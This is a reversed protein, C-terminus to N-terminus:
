CPPQGVPDADEDEVSGAEALEIRWRRCLTQAEALATDQV